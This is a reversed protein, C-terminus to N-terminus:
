DQEYNEKYDEKYNKNTGPMLCMQLRYKLYFMPNHLVKIIKESEKRSEFYQKIPLELRKGKETFQLVGNEDYSIDENPDYDLSVLVDTRESYKRDQLDGHWYHIILGDVYSYKIDKFKEKYLEWSNKSKITTKQNLIKEYFPDNIICFNALISDAGGIIEIDNLKGIKQYFSKNIAWIQGTSTSVKSENNSHNIKTALTSKNAFSINGKSKSIYNLNYCSNLHIVESWPQIIDYVKLKEITNEVWSPNVFYIDRDSWAIFEADDPLNKIALNILNEKVWLIDKLKFKLHKFIKDSYDPLEENYIGECLVIRLNARNSYNSIFLDLNNKSLISQNFDFYPLILYLM